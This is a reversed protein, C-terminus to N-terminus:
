INALGDYVNILAEYSENFLKKLKDYVLQNEKNPSIVDEKAIFKDIEEFGKLEGIAVGATVAAGMSTAEELYNLKNISVDYIDAMIQRQVSGQALGGIVNIEDIKIHEKFIDLIISLNYFIGEIVARYMDKKSHEMKLGIFAGKANENWRPSREGLIYPLFLLNNAGIKSKEIESNILEYVDLDDKEAMLKEYDGITQKIWSFSNGAAQMTGCPSIYGPVIHAWNFTRMQKDYIPKKTTLAIWSSSGLYNYVVGEKVSGAGVSACMGDGGGIVVKTGVPLGCEESVEKNIEGMIETSPCAKPLLNKNINAAALIKDSWKFDNLDFANTGSADSYDTAFNGTLRYVIYDKAQLMKYTKNFVEPENNKIWMLKEISYSPSIRHGTIHYFEEMDIKSKLEEAEKVSRQDAWIIADRLVTGESDVCVCGMMQGSFSVAKVEDANVDKLLEKTSKCVAKWWDLPNQEAWNGNFFHTDYSYTKSKVLKGDTTFLTAKNGSTGLDHAVIYKMFVGVKM